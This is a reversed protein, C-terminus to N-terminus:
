HWAMNRQLCNWFIWKIYNLYFFVSLVHWGWQKEVCIDGFPIIWAPNIPFDMLEAPFTFANEQCVIGSTNEANSPFRKSGTAQASSMEHEVVSNICSGGDQM